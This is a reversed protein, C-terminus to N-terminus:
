ASMNGAHRRVIADRGVSPVVLPVFTVVVSEARAGRRRGRQTGVSRSASRTRGFLVRDLLWFQAVWLSGFAALNAFQCMAVRPLGSLGVAGAWQAATAVAFTSLALGAASMAAFAVVERRRTQDRRGWVWRRNLVFSPVMGVATAVVNAWGASTAGSLLLVVLVLQSTLTAIVSVSCYRALQHRRGWLAAGVRNTSSMAGLSM